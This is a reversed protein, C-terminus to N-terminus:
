LPVAERQIAGYRYPDFIQLAFIFLFALAQRTHAVGNMGIVDRALTHETGQARASISCWLAFFKLASVRLLFCAILDLNCYWFSACVAKLANM